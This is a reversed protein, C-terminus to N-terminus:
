KKNINAHRSASAHAHHAPRTRPKQILPSLPAIIFFFAATWDKKKEACQM